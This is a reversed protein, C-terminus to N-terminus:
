LYGINKYVSAKNYLSICWKEIKGRVIIGRLYIAGYITKEQTSQNQM